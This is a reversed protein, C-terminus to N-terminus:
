GKKVSRMFIQDRLVDPEPLGLGTLDATEVIADQGYCRALALRPSWCKEQTDLAYFPQVVPLDPDESDEAVVMAIRNSRLRVFSGIPYFGVSIVFSILLERDFAGEMAQLTRVAEAPDLGPKGDSGCILFDFADCIAAMRGLLGIREGPLGHPYGTGDIREHHQVCADLAPIPFDDQRALADHGLMVHQPWAPAKRFDGEATGMSRPLLTTGFDLFLGALGANRTDELSLRLQCALTVMLASVAVAHRYGFRNNLKCRMLGHFAQSDKQLSEILGAVVPQVLKVPVAKGLRADEFIKGVAQEARTLLKQAAAVALKHEPTVSTAPRPPPPAAHRSRLRDVRSPVAPATAPGDSRAAPAAPAESRATDIIVGTLRSSRVQELIEHDSIRFGAKWFPHHFWSGEFKEVFMGVRLDQLAVRQLM